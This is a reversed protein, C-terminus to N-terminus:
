CREKNPPPLFIESFVNQYDFTWWANIETIFITEFPLLESLKPINHSSLSNKDYFSPQNVPSPSDKHNQHAQIELGVHHSHIQGNHVHELHDHYFLVHAIVDSVLPQLSQVAANLYIFLCALAIIKKM